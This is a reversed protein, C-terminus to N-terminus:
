GVRELVVLPIRRDTRSQYTDYSPWFTTMMSWLRNREEDKATRARVKLRQDKVQVQASPDNLLNLFWSPHTPAGGQSAIVVLADGDRGFILPTRRELGSKRGITFLVLTPVGNWEYGVEGNTELYRKVHEDGFLSLDLESV